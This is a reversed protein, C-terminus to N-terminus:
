LDSVHQREADSLKLPPAPQQHMRKPQRSRYYRSRHVKLASCAAQTGVSASLTQVANM